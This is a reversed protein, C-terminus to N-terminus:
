FGLEAFVFDLLETVLELERKRSAEGLLAAFLAVVAVVVGVEAVLGELFVPLLDLVFSLVLYSSADALSSLSPGPRRGRRLDGTRNGLSVRPRPLPRPQFGAGVEAGGGFTATQNM